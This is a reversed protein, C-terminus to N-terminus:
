FLVVDLCYCLVDWIFACFSWHLFIQPGDTLRVNKTKRKKRKMTKAVKAAPHRLFLINKISSIDKKINARRETNNCEEDM